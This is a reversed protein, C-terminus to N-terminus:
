RFNVKCRVPEVGSSNQKHDFYGAALEVVPPFMLTLNDAICSNKPTDKIMQLYISLCSRVKIINPPLNKGNKGFFMCMCM